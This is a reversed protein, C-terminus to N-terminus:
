APAMRDGVASRRPFSGVVLALGAITGALGLWMAANNLHRVVASLEDDALVAVFAVRYSGVACVVVGGGLVSAISASRIAHTVAAVAWDERPAPLLAVWRALPYAAGGILLAAGGLILDPAPVGDPNSLGSIAAILVLATCCWVVGFGVIVFRQVHDSISRRALGASRVAGQPRRRRTLEALLSGVAMGAAMAFPNFPSGASWIWWGLGGAVGGGVRWRRTWTLADTILARTAPTLPVAYAAAFASVNRSTPSRLGVIALAALVVSWGVVLLVGPM